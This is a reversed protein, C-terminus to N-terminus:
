FHISLEFPEDAYADELDARLGAWYPHVRDFVAERSRECVDPFHERLLSHVAKWNPDSEDLMSLGFVWVKDADKGVREILPFPDTVWPIVPCIMASTRLGARKCESLAEMRRPTPMTNAEFIRRVGDDEFALSFGVVADPMATLVDLDRIVLDSKTLISASGGRSLLLELVARTQRLEAECPQYPDTEYGMYVRQPDIRELADALRSEMDRHFRIERSWDSEAKNLAYCYRCRHACGVYPDIQYEHSPLPCPALIPRDSCERYQM